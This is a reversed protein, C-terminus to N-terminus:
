DSHLQQITLRGRGCVVCHAAADTRGKLRSTRTRYQGARQDEEEGECIGTRYSVIKTFHSNNDLPPPNERHARIHETEGQVYWYSSSHVAIAALSRRHSVGVQTRVLEARLAIIYAPM